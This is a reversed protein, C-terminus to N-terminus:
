SALNRERRSHEPLRGRSHISCAGVHPGGTLAELAMPAETFFDGGTGTKKKEGAHAALTGVATSAEVGEIGVAAMAWPWPRWAKSIAEGSGTGSELVPTRV